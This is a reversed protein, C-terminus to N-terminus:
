IIQYIYRFNGHETIINTKDLIDHVTDKYIKDQNNKTHHILKVGHIYVKPFVIHNYEIM